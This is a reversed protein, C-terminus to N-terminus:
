ASVFSWESTTLWGDSVQINGVRICYAFNYFIWPQVCPYRVKAM